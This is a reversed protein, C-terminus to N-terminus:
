QTEIRKPFPPQAHAWWPGPVLSFNEISRVEVARLQLLALVRFRTKRNNITPLFYTEKHFRTKDTELEVNEVSSLARVCVCVCM